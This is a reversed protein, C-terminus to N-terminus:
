PIGLVPILQPDENLILTAGEDATEPTSGIDMPLFYRAGEGPFAVELVRRLEKEM